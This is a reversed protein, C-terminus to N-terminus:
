EKAEYLSFYTDAINSQFEAICRIARNGPFIVAQWFKEEAQSDREAKCFWGFVEGTEREQYIVVWTTM